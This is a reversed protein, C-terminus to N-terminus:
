IFNQAKITTTRSRSLVKLRKLDGAILAEKKVRTWRKIQNERTRASSLTSHEESYVVHANQHKKIWDAGKNHNHADLRNKLNETVGIYLDNSSTRLIYLFFM